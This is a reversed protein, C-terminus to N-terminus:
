WWIEKGVAPGADWEEPEYDDPVSALLEELEYLEDLAPSIRIEGDVSLIEVKSGVELGVELALAKPIRVARSNGWMQVTTVM